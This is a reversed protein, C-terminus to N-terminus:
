SASIDLRVLADAKSSTKHKLQFDFKSYANFVMADEDADFERYIKIRKGDGIIPENVPLLIAKDADIDDVNSSSYVNVGYVTPMKGNVLTLGSGSANQNMIKDTRLQHAFKDSCILILPVKKGYKGLRYIAESIGDSVGRDTSADLTVTTTNKYADQAWYFLGSVIKASTSSSRDQALSSLIANEEASSFGNSISTLVEDVVDLDQEDIDDSSVKAKACLKGPQLVISSATYKQEKSEADIVTDAGGGVAVQKVNSDDTTVPISRTKGAVTKTEFLQRCINDEYVTRIVEDAIPKPLYNEGTDDSVWLDNDRATEYKAFLAEKFAKKLEKDIKFTKKFM